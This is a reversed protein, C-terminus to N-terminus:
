KPVICISKFVVLWMITKRQFIACHSIQCEGTRGKYKTPSLRDRRGGGGETGGKVIPVLGSVGGGEWAISLSQDRYSANWADEFVKNIENFDVFPEFVTLRWWPLVRWTRPLSFPAEQPLSLKETVNEEILKQSCPRPQWTRTIGVSGQKNPMNNWKQDNQSCIVKLVSNFLKVLEFVKAFSFAIFTVYFKFPIEVKPPRAVRLM